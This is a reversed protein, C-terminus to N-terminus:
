ASKKEREDNKVGIEDVAKVLLKYDDQPLEDLWEQTYPKEPEIKDIVLPLVAEYAAVIYQSRLKDEDKFLKENFIKQLKHTWKERLSVKEGTSLSVSKPM